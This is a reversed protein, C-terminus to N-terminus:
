QEGFKMKKLAVVTGTAHDQAKYVTGYTGEGLKCLKKYKQKSRNDM